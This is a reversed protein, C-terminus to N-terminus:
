HTCPQHCVEMAQQQLRESLAAHEADEDDEDDGTWLHHSIVGLVENFQV